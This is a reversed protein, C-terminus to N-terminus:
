TATAGESLNAGRDLLHRRLVGPEVARTDDGATLALAAAVGAAEGVAMAIPMVRLSSHAGHDASIPRGAVLLNAFGRPRLCRYPIDYAEGPPLRRIVTGTGAPNHIDVPYSGRAIGDDFKRASLVDDTTLLHDGMVRRSERVGIQAGMRLLYAKEFGPVRKTIFEVMQRVQRRGELEAATLDEANTADLKVVRTTNFHIEGPRTSYFFLVNERPNDIEGREKAADYLANIEDRSPIRDEDVGGMRFNLTMPQGLGDEERGVEIDAGAWACLDADGTCDVYVRGEIAELGSKSLVAIRILQGSDSEVGALTTHLRLRVGAALAMEDAVLKFVEPDFRGGEPDPSWADVEKMRERLRAFLGEIIPEGGAMWTMFPNVLGATAMGGLFGYREILLTDAGEEAATIAACLGSPGGGVVVVDAQDALPLASVNHPSVGAQGGYGQRLRAGVGNAAESM